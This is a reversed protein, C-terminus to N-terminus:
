EAPNIGFTGLWCLLYLLSECDDLRSRIPRAGELSLISQFQLLEPAEGAYEGVFTAYDFEALVVKIGDATEQIQIARDSINGHLIKCKDHAATLAMMANAIAIVVQSPNKASSILNGAWESVTRWHERDQSIGPLGAFATITSDDVSTDGQDICVPGSGLLQSFRGGFESSKGFKAHLVKLFSSERVDSSFNDDSATWADKILFAPKDMSERSTSAAFYRARCGTLRDAAGICRQSYYTRREVQGTNDDMEQVDIELYPDGSAQDIEYRITPDFGLSDVSCLSWGVLLSIFARRGKASSIDM